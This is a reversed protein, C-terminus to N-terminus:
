CVHLKSRFRSCRPQVNQAGLDQQKLYQKKIKRPTSFFVFAISYFICFLQREITMTTPPTNTRGNDIWVATKARQNQIVIAYDLLGGLPFEGSGHVGV